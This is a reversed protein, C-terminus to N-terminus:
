SFTSTRAAMALPVSVVLVANGAWGVSTIITLVDVDQDASQQRIIAWGGQSATKKHGTVFGEM